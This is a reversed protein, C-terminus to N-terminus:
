DGCNKYSSNMCRTAMQQAKTVDASSLERAILDRQDAAGLLEGAGAAINYWMHATLKDKPVGQGIYYMGGLIFQATSDGQEAAKRFWKVAEVYDQPLEEGSDYMGGLSIQAFTNGQEAAKRYWKVAEAYDQPVGKGHQYLSGLGTQAWANGREALPRWEKFATAYDGRNDAALGKQYDQASASVGSLTLLSISLVLATLIRKMM